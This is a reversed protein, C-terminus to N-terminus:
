GWHNASTQRTKSAPRHREASVLGRVRVAVLVLVDVLV